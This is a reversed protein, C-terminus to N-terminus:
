NGSRVQELLDLVRPSILRPDPALAPELLIARHMSERAKGMLEAEAEDGKLYEYFYASALYLHVASSERMAAAADELGAITDEYQGRLMQIVASRAKQRAASRVEEYVGNVAESDPILALAKDLSEAAGRLDLTALTTRAERLHQNVLNLREEEDLATRMSHNVRDLWETADAHGPSFDLIAAFEAQADEFRGREFARRGETLGDAIRVASRVQSELASLRNDLSDDGFGAARILQARNLSEAAASADGAALARHVSDIHQRAAAVREAAGEERGLRELAERAAESTVDTRAARELRTRADGYIEQDLLRQGEALDTQANTIETAIVGLAEDVRSRYADADAAGSVEQRLARLREQSARLNGNDGLTRAAAMAAEFDGPAVRPTMADEIRVIQDAREQRLDAAGSLEALQRSQEFLERAKAANGSGQYAKGLYFYPYYDIFNMGYARVNRGPESRAQIAGELLRVAGDFDGAQLADVGKEYSEYWPQALADPVSVVSSVATALM